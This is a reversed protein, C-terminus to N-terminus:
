LQVTTSNMAGSIVVNGRKQKWRQNQQLRICTDQVGRHNKMSNVFKELIRKVKSLRFTYHLQQFSEVVQNTLKQENKRSGGAFSQLVSLLRFQQQQLAKAILIAQNEARHNIYHKIFRNL